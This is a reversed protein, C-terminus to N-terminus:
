TNEMRLVVNKFKFDKFNSASSIFLTLIFKDATFFRAPSYAVRRATLFSCCTPHNILAMVHISKVVNAPSSV